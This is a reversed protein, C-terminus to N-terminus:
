MKFLFIKKLFIEKDAKKNASKELIKFVLVLFTSIFILSAGIISFLNSDIGLFFHQLVFTYLLDTSRLLAVKSAEEYKLSINMMIQSVVGSSASIFSYFLQWLIVSSSKFEDFNRNELDSLYLVLSLLLSFPFGFYGAYIVSVSYHVKRNSLNKLFLPVLSSFFAAVLGFSIGLAPRFGLNESVIGITSNKLYIETSNFNSYIFQKLFSPQSVLLVGIITLLISLMHALNLKEKLFIRSLISVLVIKSHLLAASDSPDIFKVSFHLCILGLMGFIGRLILRIRDEKKGFPNLKSKFIILLMTLLQVLYRFAAQESGNLMVAKRIFINSLSLFFASSIAISFGILKKSSIRPKDEPPDPATGLLSDNKDSIDIDPLDEDENEKIISLHRSHNM